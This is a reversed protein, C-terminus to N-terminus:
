LLGATYHTTREVTSLTEGTTTSEIAIDCFALFSYVPASIGDKFGLPNFRCGVIWEGLVYKM